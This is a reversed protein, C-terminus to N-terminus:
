HQSCDPSSPPDPPVQGLHGTMHQLRRCQVIQHATVMKMLKLLSVAIHHTINRIVKDFPFAISAQKVRGVIFGVLSAISPIYNCQITLRVTKTGRKYRAM